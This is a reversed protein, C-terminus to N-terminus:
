RRARQPGSCCRSSPSACTFPAILRTFPDIRDQARSEGAAHVAGPDLPIRRRGRDGSNPVAAPDALDFPLAGPGAVSAALVGIAAPM